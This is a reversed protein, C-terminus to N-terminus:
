DGLLEMAVFDAGLGILFELKDNPLFAKMRKVLEAKAGETLKKDQGALLKITNRYLILYQKQWDLMGLGGSTGHGPYLITGKKLQKKLIEINNLWATTHGDTVFAHVKNLVVDGIFAINQNNIKTTWYSDSHSEGKGLDHVTYSIGDFIISEKDALTKNPFLRKTPWEAGFMPTWIKEKAADNEEIVSKTGKTSIIPIDGNNVINVIGNYHDPHGHTILVALLPKNLSDLKAKLAKSSSVLLTADIVVVGHASEILYAKSYIGGAGADFEHVVTKFKPYPTQAVLQGTVVIALLAVLLCKAQQMLVHKSM